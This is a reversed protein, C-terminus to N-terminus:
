FLFTFTSITYCVHIYPRVESAAMNVVTAITVDRLERNPTEIETRLLGVCEMSLTIACLSRADRTLFTVLYVKRAEIKGM